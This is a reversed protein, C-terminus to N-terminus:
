FVAVVPLGRLAHLNVDCLLDTNNVCHRQCVFANDVPQLVVVGHLVGGKLHYSFFVCTCSILYEAWSSIASILLSHDGAIFFSGNANTSNVNGHPCFPVGSSCKVPGRLHCRSTSRSIAWCILSFLPLISKLVKRKATALPRPIPLDANTLQITSHNIDVRM